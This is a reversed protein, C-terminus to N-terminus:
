RDLHNALIPAQKSSRAQPPRCTRRCFSARRGRLLFCVIRYKYRHVWLWTFSM